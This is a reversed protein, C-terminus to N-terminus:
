CACCRRSSCRTAKPPAAVRAALEDDVTSRPRARERDAARATAPTSRRSSSRRRTGTAEALAPRLEEIEPRSLCLMLIPAGRARTPWTSSSTSSPRRRGISTTSCWRAAAARAALAELLRRVARFIEEPNVPASSLGLASAIPGVVAPATRAPPCSRRSSQRPRTPVRTTRSAPPRRSRGRGAALVHDGRRLAPLPGPARAGTRRADHRARPDPAVQRRGREGIVLALETKRSRSRRTSRPPSRM